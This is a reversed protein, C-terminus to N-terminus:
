SPMSLAVISSSLASTAKVVSYSGGSLKVINGNGGSQTYLVFYIDGNTDIWPIAASGNVVDGANYGASYAAGDTTTRIRYIPSAGGSVSNRYVYMTLGDQSVILPKVYNNAGNGDNTDIGTTWAGDKDRKCIYSSSLVDSGVGLYLEGLFTVMSHIYGKSTTIAATFGTDETMTADGPRVWYLKPKSGGAVNHQGVYIKGNYVHLVAPVAGMDTEQGLQQLQGNLVNLLFVRGRSTSDYTSIVLFTSSYPIIQMVAIPGTSDRPNRPLTVLKYDTDADGDYAHIEGATHGPYYMRNRHVCIRTAVSVFGFSSVDNNQQPVVGRTGATWTSGDTSTWFTNSGVAGAGYDYPVFFRRVYTSRDPLPLNIIGKGSGTMVTGNLRVAGDRKRIGGLSKVADIQINQASTLEGDDLHVPSKVVNVGKAGLNFVNIKGPM